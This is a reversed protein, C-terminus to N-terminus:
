VDFRVGHQHSHYSLTSVQFKKKKEGLSHKFPLPLRKKQKDDHMPNHAQAPSRQKKDKTALERCVFTGGERPLSLVILFVLLDRTKVTQAVKQRNSCINWAESLVQGHEKTRSLYINVKKEESEM